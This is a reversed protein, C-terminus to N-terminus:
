IDLVEGITGDPSPNWTDYIENKILDVIIIGFSTALYAYNNKTRIRNIEKKGAIYKNFLDPINIILGNKYIDINTSKYAIIFLDLEDSYSIASVGCDSLGHVKSLKKLQDFEKNYIIIAYDTAGFVESEGAAVCRVSQYPLHDAWSGIPGQGLLHGTIFLLTIILFPRKM